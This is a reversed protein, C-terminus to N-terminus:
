REIVQQVLDLASSRRRSTPLHGIRTTCFALQGPCSFDHAAREGVDLAFHWASFFRCGPSSRRWGSAPAASQSVQRAGFKVVRSEAVAEALGAPVFAHRQQVGFGRKAPWPERLRLAVVLDLTQRDLPPLLMRVPADLDTEDLM